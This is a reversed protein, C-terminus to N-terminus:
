ALAQMVENVLDVVPLTGFLRLVPGQVEALWAEHRARSRGMFGPEDYQASWTLFGRHLVEMDGGPGIRDGFRTHERRKLRALRVPTPTALFVVLDAKDVLEDGWGDLSGSLVWGAGGQAERILDVREPVPRKESFPPDTPLWFYDDTDLHPVALTEALAVGLTSVGSCSAGTIHVKAM